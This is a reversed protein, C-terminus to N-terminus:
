AARAETQIFAEPAGTNAARVAHEIDAAAFSVARDAVEVANWAATAARGTLSQAKIVLETRTAVAALHAARVAAITNM